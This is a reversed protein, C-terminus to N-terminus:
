IDQILTDLTDVDAQDLDQQSKEKEKLKQLVDLWKELKQKQTADNITAITKAFISQLGDIIEPSLLSKEIMTKLWWAIERDNELATLLQILYDKKTM